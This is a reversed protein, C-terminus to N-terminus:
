ITLISLREQLTLDFRLIAVLCTKDRERSEALRLEYLELKEFRRTTRNGYTFLCISQKWM